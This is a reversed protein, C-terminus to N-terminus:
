TVETVALMLETVSAPPPVITLMADTAPSRLPGGSTMFAIVGALPRVVPDADVRDSRAPERRVHGAVHQLAVLLRQLPVDREAAEAPRVVELAHDDEEGRVSRGVDRTM